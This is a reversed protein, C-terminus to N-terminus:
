CDGQPPCYINVIVIPRINDQKIYVWQMEANKSRSNLKALKHVTYQLMNKYYLAVGGCRKVGLNEDGWSRDVRTLNYGQIELLNTPIHDGLWTESLGIIHAKSREIQPKISDIKRIDGLSRTNMHVIHIGKDEGFELSDKDM